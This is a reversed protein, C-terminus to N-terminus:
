PKKIFTSGNAVIQDLLQSLHRFFQGLIQWYNMYPTLLLPFVQSIYM